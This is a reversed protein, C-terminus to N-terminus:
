AQWGCSMTSCNAGAKRVDWERRVVAMIVAGLISSTGLGSGKPIGVLTTLGLRRGLEELMGALTIDKPWDAMEPSFGALVALAAKALAFRDEPRQFDLLDELHSIEIHRSCVM